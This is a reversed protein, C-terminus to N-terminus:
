SGTRENNQQASQGQGHHHEATGIGHTAMHALAAQRLRSVIEGPQSLFKMEIVGLHRTNLFKVFTVQRLASFHALFDGGLLHFNRRSQIARRVDSRNGSM